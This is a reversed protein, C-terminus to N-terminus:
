NKKKLENFYFIFYILNIKKNTFLWKLLKLKTTEPYYYKIAEQFKRNLTIKKIERKVTKKDIQNNDNFLVTVYSILRYAYLGDLRQLNESDANSEILFKSMRNFVIETEDVFTPLYTTTISRDNFVYNYVPKKSFCVNEINMLYDINFVIAEGRKINKNFKLKHKDIVSKKYLKNGIHRIVQKSFLEIYNDILFAKPYIGEYDYIVSSVLEGRITNYSAISFDSHKIMNVLIETSDNNLYDDSDIFQIYEGEAKEIGLNRATSPGSNNVHFYQIRKDKVAKIIQESKDTSGDNIIILEIDKYTQNLVSNIAKSVFKEANYVPMIISVKDKHM